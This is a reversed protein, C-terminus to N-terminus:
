MVDSAKSTIHLSIYKCFLRAFRASGSITFCRPYDSFEGTVTTSHATAPHILQLFPVIDAWKKGPLPIEIKTAEEFTGHFMRDFVPSCATLFAKTFHVKRDEVVFVVDSYAEAESFPEPAKKAAM